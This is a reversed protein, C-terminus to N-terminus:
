LRRFQVYGYDVYYSTSQNGDLDFRVKNNSTTTSTFTFIASLNVSNEIVSSTGVISSPFKPTTEDALIHWGNGGNASIQHYMTNMLSGSPDYANIYSCSIEYTGASFGSFEGSSSTFTLGSLTPDIMLSGGGFGTNSSDIVSITGLNQGLRGSDSVSNGPNGGSYSYRTYYPTTSGPTGDTSIITVSYQNSTPATDFIFRITDADIILTDTYVFENTSVDRISYLLNNSNLSHTVDISTTSGDGIAQTFGTAGTSINALETAIKSKVAQGAQYLISSTNAM